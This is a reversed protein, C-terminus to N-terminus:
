SMKLRPTDGSSGGEAESTKSSSQGSSKTDSHDGFATSGPNSSTPTSVSALKRLRGTSDKGVATPYDIRHHFFSTLVRTFANAIASLDRLTLETEDLEGESFIKNIHDRVVGKIRAPTPDDLTRTIAELGDALLVIGAVRSQPKPGEYRFDKEDITEMELDMTALAKDYFFSILRTGHHQPIIDIIEQPLKAELGMEIGDKVHAQIVRASMRPTLKDHRNERQTQNEVYYLPKKTKGIDHYLCAVRALLGNEGIATSAAESLTGVILSHHYTGPAQVMLERLLPSNQDALELLKFDTTYGFVAEALTIMLSLLFSTLIGSSFALGVNWLFGARAGLAVPENFFTVFTICGAVVANLIGVLLGIRFLDVRKKVTTMKRAGYISGAFFFIGFYISNDLFLAGLFGILISVLLAMETGIVMRVLMAVACLPLMYNFAGATISSGTKTMSTAIFVIVRAVLFIFAIASATLLYDKPKLELSRFHRSYRQLVLLLIFTLLFVGALVLWESNLRNEQAMGKLMTIHRPEFVSGARIIIVGKRIPIQVINHESDSAAQRRAETEAQNYTLTPRILKQALTAIEPRSQPLGQIQGSRFMNRMVVRVDDLDYIQSFDDVADETPASTGANEVGRRSIGRNMDPALLEKSSVINRNRSATLILNRVAFEQNKGFGGNWLASFEDNSVQVGLADEFKRRVLNKGDSSHKEAQAIRAIDFAQQLRELVRQNERHSFDYVSKVNDAAEKRRKATSEDDVIVMDRPAYVDEHAVDGVKYTVQPIPNGHFRVLLTIVASFVLLSGVGQMWSRQFFATIKNLPAKM